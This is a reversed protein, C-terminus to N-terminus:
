EGSEVPMPTEDDAEAEAEAEGEREDEESNTDNGSVLTIEIEIVSNNHHGDGGAEEDTSLQESVNPEAMTTTAEHEVASQSANLTNEENSEGPSITENSNAASESTSVEDNPTLENTSEEIETKRNNSCSPNANQEVEQLLKSISPTTNANLTANSIKSLENVLNYSLATVQSETEFLKVDPKSHMSSKPSIEKSSSCDSNIRSDCIPIHFSSHSSALAQPHLNHSNFICSRHLNSENRRSRGANSSSRQFYYPQPRPRNRILKVLDLCQKVRRQSKRRKM